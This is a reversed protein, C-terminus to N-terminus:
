WNRGELEIIVKELFKKMGHQQYYEYAILFGTGYNPDPSLDMRKRLAAAMDSDLSEYIISSAVHASGERWPPNDGDAGREHQWTHFLEHAIVASMLDRPLFRLLYIKAEQRMLTGNLMESEIVYLGHADGSNKGFENLITKSVLEIRIEDIPTYIEIGANALVQATQVMLKHATQIDDVATERCNDCQIRGDSFTWYNEDVIRGCSDCIKLESLHKTHFRQGLHNMGYEETLPAKCIDCRPADHNLYCDQHYYKDGIITDTGIINKECIECLPTDKTLYCKSHYLKGEDETFDGTILETCISCTLCWPHVPKGLAEEYEGTIYKNCVSCKIVQAHIQAPLISFGVVLSSIIAIQFINLLYSTMLIILPLRLGFEQVTAFRLEAFGMRSSIYRPGFNRKNM